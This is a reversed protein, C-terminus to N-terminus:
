GRVAVGGGDKALHALLKGFGLVEVWLKLDRACGDDPVLLGGFNPMHVATAAAAPM